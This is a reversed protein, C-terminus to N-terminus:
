GTANYLRRRIVLRLKGVSDTVHLLQSRYKSQQSCVVTRGIKKSKVEVQLINAIYFRYKCQNYYSINKKKIKNLRDTLFTIDTCQSLNMISSASTYWIVEFRM